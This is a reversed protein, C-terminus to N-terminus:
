HTAWVWTVIAYFLKLKKKLLEVTVSTGEIYMHLSSCSSVFLYYQLITQTLVYWAWSFCSYAINQMPPRSRSQGLKIRFIQWIALIGGLSGLRQSIWFHQLSYCQRESAPSPFYHDKSITCRIFLLFISLPLLLLLKLYFSVCPLQKVNTEVRGECSLNEIPLHPWPCHQRRVLFSSEPLTNGTPLTLGWLSYKCSYSM